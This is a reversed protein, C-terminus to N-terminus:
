GLHFRQADFKSEIIDFLEYPISNDNCSSIILHGIVDEETVDIEWNEVYLILDGQTGLGPEEFVDEFTENSNWINNYFDLMKQLIVKAEEPTFKGKCLFSSSSSNSIFGTRIKM